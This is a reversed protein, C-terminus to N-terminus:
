MYWKCLGGPHFLNQPPPYQPVTLVVLYCFFTVFVMDGHFFKIFRRCWCNSKQGRIKLHGLFSRPFPFVNARSTFLNQCNSSSPLDTLHTLCYRLMVFPGCTIKKEGFVMSKFHFVDCLKLDSCSWLVPNKKVAIGCFFFILLM